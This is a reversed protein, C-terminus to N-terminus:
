EDESYARPRQREMEVSAADEPYDGRYYSDEVRDLDIADPDGGQRWVEYYVDGEYDHKSM